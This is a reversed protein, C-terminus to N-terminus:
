VIAPLTGPTATNGIEICAWETGDWMLVVFEGVTTFTITTNAFSAPTLVSSGGDVIHTIKKMQGVITGDPLTIAQAAGTSVLNTLYSGVSVAGAGTLTQLSATPYFPVLETGGESGIGNDTGILGISDWTSTTTNWTNIIIGGRDTSYSLPLNDPLPCCPTIHAIGSIDFIRRVWSDLNLENATENNKNAKRFLGSKLITKKM